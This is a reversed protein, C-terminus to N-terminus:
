PLKKFLNNFSGASISSIIDIRRKCFDNLGEGAVDIISGALMMAAYCNGPNPDQKLLGVASYLYSSFDHGDPNNRIAVALQCLDRRDM